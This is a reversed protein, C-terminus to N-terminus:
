TSSRHALSAGGMCSPARGRIQSKRSGPQTFPASPRLHSCSRAPAERSIHADPPVAARSVCQRQIGSERNCPASACYHVGYAHRRKLAACRSHMHSAQRKSRVCICVRKPCSTNRACVVRPGPPIKISVAFRGVHQLTIVASASIRQQGVSILQQRTGASSDVISSAGAPRRAASQAGAQAIAFCCCM